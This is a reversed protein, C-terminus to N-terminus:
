KKAEAAMRPEEALSRPLPPSILNHLVELLAVGVGLPCYPLSPSSV